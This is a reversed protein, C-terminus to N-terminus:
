VQDFHRLANEFAFGMRLILIFYNLRNFTSGTKELNVKSEALTDECKVAEDKELAEYSDFLQQLATKREVSPVAAGMFQEVFIKSAHHPNDINKRANSSLVEKRLLLETGDISVDTSRLISL